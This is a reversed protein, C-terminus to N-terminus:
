ILVSNTSANISKLCALLDFRQGLVRIEVGITMIWGKLRVHARSQWRSQVPTNRKPSARPESQCEAMVDLVKM